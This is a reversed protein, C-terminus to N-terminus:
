QVELCPSAPGPSRPTDRAPSLRSHEHSSGTREECTSRLLPHPSSSCSASSHLPQLSSSLVSTCSRRYGAESPEGSRGSRLELTEASRRFRSEAGARSSRGGCGGGGGRPLEDRSASLEDASSSSAVYPVARLMPTRLEAEPGPSPLELGLGELQTESILNVHSMSTSQDRKSSELASSLVLKRHSPRSHACKRRTPPCVVRCVGLIFCIGTLLGHTIDM